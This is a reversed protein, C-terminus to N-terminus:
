AGPSGSPETTETFAFMRVGPRYPRASNPKLQHMGVRFKEERPATFSRECFGESTFWIRVGESPDSAPKRGRTWIVLGGPATVRRLAAVTRRGDETTINGFIGCALVLHAPAVGACTSTDGADGRLVDVGRLQLQAVRRRAVEALRLNSEVLLVRPRKPQYERLVPLLDRGDGACLSLVRVDESRDATISTLAERICQQVVRLRRSLSSEPDEYAHHWAIWDTM